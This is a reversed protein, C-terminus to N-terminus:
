EFELSSPLLSSEFSAIKGGEAPGCELIGSGLTKGESMFRVRYEGPAPLVMKGEGPFLITRGERREARFDAMSIEFPRGLLAAAEGLRGESLAKRIRSSSVPAGGIELPEVIEAELGMERALGAARGADLSAGKGLRTTSGLILRAVDHREILASFFDRGEISSFGRDFDVAICYEMGAEALLRTKREFGVIDGAYGEPDILSRPNRRFTLCSAHLGRIWALAEVRSLLKRHGVHVGDFVGIAIAKRGADISSGNWEILRV